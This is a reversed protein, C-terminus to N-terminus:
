EGQRRAKLTAKTTMEKGDRVYVIEVVDGPKAEGLLPMWAEVSKIEKGNWKTILDGAKIGAEAASTGETVDGVLVGPKDGSYDGPAIGFRVRSAVPGPAPQDGEAANSEGSADARKFPETRAAADLAIRETMDIIKAAGEVNILDSTDTPMHYQEHLGTFLFLVPIGWANFSAHDSPGSGGKKAAITMGSSDFYPKLWEEFGEATGVGGIELRGENLRGVMDMNIMLAHKSKDAIPNRTYFRSGNLGSEEASFGMFLMSRMPQDAPTEAYKRAMTNALVLMASTGSANDDAGPHLKGAGRPDRSGFAGYGVHDYHAGIIVYESALEGRGPLLGIVNDTMIPERVLENDLTVSANPLDVVARGADALKRLDTLSRGQPDGARVLADAADISMMSVPVEGKSMARISNVDELKKTREDTAGPPNVLIIGAAQRLVAARIKQELGARMSWGERGGNWKSKGEDNIPEFRLIMAIKGQLNEGEDFSKYGDEGQPIAYGVFVVPATIAATSTYALANFDKGPTLTTTQGNSTWTAVQKNLKLKTGASFPQRFTAAGSADKLAPQLGARKMEFEVYEAALVNGRLGPARGEFFPQSLATDHKRFQDAYVGLVEASSPDTRRSPDNLAAQLSQPAIGATLVLALVTARASRSFSLM